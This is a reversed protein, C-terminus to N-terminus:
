GNSWWEPGKFYELADENFGVNTSDAYINHTNHYMRITSTTQLLMQTILFSNGASLYYSELGIVIPVGRSFNRDGKRM